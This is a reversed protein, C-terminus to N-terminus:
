FIFSSIWLHLATLLFSVALIVCFAINTVRTHTLTIFHAVLPSTTIIALRILWDYAQPQLAILILATLDIFVLSYYYQRTQIRDHYSTRLYHIIGTFTLIVVFVYTLVQPITLTSYDPPMPFEKLEAFHSIYLSFDTGYRYFVVGALIWYPLIIGLLSAFLSRVSFASLFFAQLIWYVPLLWFVRVEVLSVLSLLLFTYFIWGTSTKDQYTNFLTLISAVFCVQAIAGELSPFLFCAVCSLIIFASSVTRSYIRILANINNLEAMLYISLSFCAFQIWWKEQILGDLLWVGVGLLIAVWLTLRSGGVKNQLRTVM